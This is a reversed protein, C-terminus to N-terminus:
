RGSAHEGLGGITGRRLLAQPLGHMPLAAYPFSIVSAAGLNAPSVQFDPPKWVEPM